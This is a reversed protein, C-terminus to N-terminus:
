KKDIGHIFKNISDSIILSLKDIIFDIEKPTVMLNYDVPTLVEYILLKLEKEDLKGLLGLLKEKEEKNEIIDM